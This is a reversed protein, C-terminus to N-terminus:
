HHSHIYKGMPTLGSWEKKLMGKVLNRSPEDLEEERIVVIKYSAYVESSRSVGSVFENYKKVEKERSAVGGVKVFVDIKRVRSPVEEHHLRLGHRGKLEDPLRNVIVNTTGILVLGAGDEAFYTGLEADLDNQIAKIVVLAVKDNVMKLPEILDIKIDMLINRVYIYGLSGEFGIENLVVLARVWCLCPRECGCGM